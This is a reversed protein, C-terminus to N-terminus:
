FSFRRCSLRDQQSYMRYQNEARHSPSLLGIEDYYHLTRKTIGTIQTVEKMSYYQTM